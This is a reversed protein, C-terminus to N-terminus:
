STKVWRAPRYHCVRFGDHRNDHRKHRSLRLMQLAAEPREKGLVIGRGDFDENRIILRNGLHAVQPSSKRARPENEGFSEVGRGGAGTGAALMVVIKPGDPQFLRPTPDYRHDLIDTDGALPPAPAQHVGQLPM